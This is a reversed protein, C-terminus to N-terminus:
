RCQRMQCLIGSWHALPGFNSRRARTLFLRLQPLYLWELSELKWPCLDSPLCSKLHDGRGYVAEPLEGVAQWRLLACVVAPARGTVHVIQVRCGKGVCYVCQLTDSVRAKYSEFGSITPRGEQTTVCMSFANTLWTTALLSFWLFTFHGACHQSSSHENWLPFWTPM